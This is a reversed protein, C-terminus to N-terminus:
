SKQTTPSSVSVRFISLNLLHPKNGQDHAHWVRESHGTPGVYSPHHTVPTTAPFPYLNERSQQPSAYGLPAARTNAPLNDAPQHQPPQSHQVHPSGVQPTRALSPVVQPAQHHHHPPVVQAHQPLYQPPVSAAIQQQLHELGPPTLPM